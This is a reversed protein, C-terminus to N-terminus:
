VNDEEEFLSIQGGLRHIANPPAGFNDGWYIPPLGNEEVWEDWFERYEASCLSLDYAIYRLMEETPAKGELCWGIVEFEDDQMLEDVILSATEDKSSAIYVEPPLEMKIWDFTESLCYEYLKDDDAIPYEELQMLWRMAEKFAKTINAADIPKDPNELIRCTLRDVHGVAWHRLGVIDFDDPFRNLLDETILDFNVIEVADSSNNKDIGCWGWSVFMEEKGWWGFDEPKELAQTALEVVNRNMVEIDLAEDFENENSM